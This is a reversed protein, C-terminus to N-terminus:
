MDYNGQEKHLRAIKVFEKDRAIRSQQEDYGFAYNNNLAIEFPDDQMTFLLEQVIIKIEPIDIPNIVTKGELCYPDPVFELYEIAMDKVGKSINIMNEFVNELKFDHPVNLHLFRSNIDINLKHNKKDFHRRLAANVDLLRGIPEYKQFAADVLVDISVDDIGLEVSDNEFYFRVPFFYFRTTVNQTLQWKFELSQSMAKGTFDILHTRPTNEVSKLSKMIRIIHQFSIICIYIDSVGFGAQIQETSLSVSPIKGPSSLVEATIGPVTLVTNKVPRFIELFKIGKYIVVSLNSLSINSTLEKDETLNFKLSIDRMEVRVSSSPLDSKCDVFVMPIDLIGSTKIGSKNSQNGQTMQKVVKFMHQYQKISDDRIGSLNVQIAEFAGQIHCKIDESYLYIGVHAHAHSCSVLNYNLLRSEEMHTFVDLSMGHLFVQGNGLLNEVSSQELPDFVVDASDMLVGVSVKKHQFFTFLVMSKSLKVKQQIKFYRIANIIEESGRKRSNNNQLDKIIEQNLYVTMNEMMLNSSGGVEWSLDLEVSELELIRAEMIAGVIGTVKVHLKLANEVRFNLDVQKLDFQLKQNIRANKITLNVKPNIEKVMQIANKIEQVIEQSSKVYEKRVSEKLDVNLESIELSIEPSSTMVVNGKLNTSIAFQSNTVALGSIDVQLTPFENKRFGVHLTEVKIKQNDKVINVQSDRIIIGFYVLFYPIYIGTFGKFKKYKQEDPAEVAKPEQTLTLSNIGLSIFKGNGDFFELSLSKIFVNKYKIGLLKLFGISEIDLGIRDRIYNRIFYIFTVLGILFITSTGTWSLDFSM